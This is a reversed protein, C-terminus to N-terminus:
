FPNERKFLKKYLKVLIKVDQKVHKKISAMDGAKWWEYIDAGDGHKDVGVNFLEAYYELSKKSEKPVRDGIQLVNMLDMHNTESYKNLYLGISLPINNVLGLLQSRRILVPLDFAKGNFSIVFKSAEFEQWFKKLMRKENGTWVRYTKGDSVCIAVIQCFDPDLSMQQVVDKSRSNKLWKDPFPHQEPFRPVTEIDFFLNENKHKM